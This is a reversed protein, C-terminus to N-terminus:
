SKAAILNGNPRLLKFRWGMSAKSLKPSIENTALNGVHLGLILYQLDLLDHELKRQSMQGDADIARRTLVLSHLLYVQYYRFHLWEECLSSAHPFDIRQAFNRVRDVDRLSDCAALFAIDDRALRKLEDSSFGPVGVLNIQQWFHLSESIYREYYIDLVSLQSDSLRWNEDFVSPNVSLRPADANALPAGQEIELKLLEPIDLRRFEALPM